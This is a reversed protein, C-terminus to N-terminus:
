AEDGALNALAQELESLTQRLESLRRDRLVAVHIRGSGQLVQSAEIRHRVNAIASELERRLAAKSEMGRHYPGARRSAM